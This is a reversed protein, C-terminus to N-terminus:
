LPWHSRLAYIRLFCLSRGPQTHPRLICFYAELALEKDAREERGSDKALSFRLAVTETLAVLIERRTAPTKQPSPCTIGGTPPLVGAPPASSAARQATTPSPASAPM